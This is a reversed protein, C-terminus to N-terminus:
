KIKGDYIEKLSSGYVLRYKKHSRPNANESLKSKLKLTMIWHKITSPSLRLFDSAEEVTYFKKFRM